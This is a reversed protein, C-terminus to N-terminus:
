KNVNWCNYKVCVESLLPMKSGSANGKEIQSAPLKIEKELSGARGDKSGIDYNHSSGRRISFWRSLRGGADGPSTVETHSQM